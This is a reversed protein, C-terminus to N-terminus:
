RLNLLRELNTTMEDSLFIVNPLEEMLPWYELIDKAIYVALNNQPRLFFPSIDDEFFSKLFGTKM